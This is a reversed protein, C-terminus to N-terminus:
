EFFLTWDFGLISAIRMASEVSPRRRGQEISAYTTRSIEAKVAVEEQTMKNKIRLKM